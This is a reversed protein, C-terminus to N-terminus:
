RRVRHASYHVYCVGEDALYPLWRVNITALYTVGKEDYAVLPTTRGTTGIFPRM